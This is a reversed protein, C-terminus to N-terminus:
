GRFAVSEPFMRSAEWAIVLTTATQVVSPTRDTTRGAAAEIPRVTPRATRRTGFSFLHGSWARSKREVVVTTLRPPTM